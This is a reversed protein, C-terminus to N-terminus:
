QAMIFEVHMMFGSICGVAQTYWRHKCSRSCVRCFQRCEPLVKCQSGHAFMMIAVPSPQFFSQSYENQQLFSKCVIYKYTQFLLWLSHSAEADWVWSSEWCWIWDPLQSYWEQFMLGCNQWAKQAVLSVLPTLHFASSYRLHTFVEASEELTIVDLWTALYVIGLLCFAKFSYKCISVHNLRPRSMMLWVSYLLLCM